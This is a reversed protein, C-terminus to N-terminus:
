PRAARVDGDVGLLSAKLGGGRGKREGAFAELNHPREADRDREIATARECDGRPAHLMHEGPRVRRWMVAPPVSGPSHAAACLRVSRPLSGRRPGRRRRRCSRHEPGPARPGAGPPAGSAAGAAGEGGATCGRAARPPRLNARMGAYNSTGFPVGQPGHARAAGQASAGAVVVWGPTAPVMSLGVMSTTPPSSHPRSM